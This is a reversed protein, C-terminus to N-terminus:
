SAFTQAMWQFSVTTESTGWRETKLYLISLNLQIILITLLRLPENLLSVCYFLICVLVEDLEFISDIYPWMYKHITKPDSGGVLRSLAEDNAPYTRMFALAWLFHQFQPLPLLYDLEEMMEWAEVPVEASVGFYGRFCHDKSLGPLLIGLRHSRQGM